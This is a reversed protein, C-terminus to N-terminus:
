ESGETQPPTPLPMWHTFEGSVMSDRSNELWGLSNDWYCLACAGDWLLVETGDNPATEISRWDSEAM